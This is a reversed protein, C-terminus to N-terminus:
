HSPEHIATLWSEIQKTSGDEGLYAQLVRVNAIPGKAKYESMFNSIYLDRRLKAVVPCEFIAHETLKINLEKSECHPCVDYKFGYRNKYRNGLQANGGRVQCLIKSSKSDNVHTQLKFWTWPQPTTNLTSHQRKVKMVFAVAKQTVAAQLLQKNKYKFINGVKTEMIFSKTWTDSPNALHERLIKLLTPNNKTKFIDYIFGAQRLYIRYQM